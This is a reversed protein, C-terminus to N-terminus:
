IPVPPKPCSHTPPALFKVCHRLPAFACLIPFSPLSPLIEWAGRWIKEYLTRHFCPPCAAPNPPKRNHRSRIHRQCGMQHAAGPEPRRPRLQLRERRPAVLVNDFVQQMGLAERLHRVVDHRAVPQLQVVRVRDLRPVRAPNIPHDVGPPREFLLHRQEPMVHEGRGHAFALMPRRGLRLDFHEAPVSHRVHLRNQCREGFVRRHYEPEVVALVEAVADVFVPPALQELQEAHAHAVVGFVVDFLRGAGEGPPRKRLGYRQIGIASERGVEDIAGLVVVAPLLRKQALRPPEAALVDDADDHLTRRGRPEDRAM